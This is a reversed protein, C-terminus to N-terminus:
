NINGRIGERFDEIIFLRNWLNSVAKPYKDRYADEIQTLIHRFVSLDTDSLKSIHDPNKSLKKFNELREELKHKFADEDIEHEILIMVIDKEAYHDNNYIRRLSSLQTFCVQKIIEIQKPSFDDFILM